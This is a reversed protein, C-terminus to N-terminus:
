TLARTRFEEQEELEVSVLTAGDGAKMSANSVDEPHPEAIASFTKDKASEVESVGEAKMRSSVGAVCM